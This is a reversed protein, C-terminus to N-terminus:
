RSVLQQAVIFQTLEQAWIGCSEANPHYGDPAFQDPSPEFATPVHWVQEMGSAVDAGIADLTKARQGLVFRLPQPLLPFGHLPPLGCLLVTADPSHRQLDDVILASLQRRWFGTRTLGTVDNVGVSIVVLDFATPDIQAVLEQRIGGVRIGTQGVAQWEVRRAQSAALQQALKGPFATALTPCGVGDIISDGLMLLRLPSGTGAAGRREGAAPAFRPATRRVWLAQPSLLPLATWFLARRALQM